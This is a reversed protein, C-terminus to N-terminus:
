VSEAMIEADNVYYKLLDIAEEGASLLHKAAQEIQSVPSAHVKAAAHSAYHAGYQGFIGVLSHSLRRLTVTDNLCLASQLFGLDREASKITLHILDRMVAPSFEQELEALFTKDLFTKDLASKDCVAQDFEAQDFVQRSLNHTDTKDM